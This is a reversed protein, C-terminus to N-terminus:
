SLEQRVKTYKYYQFETITLEITRHEKDLTSPSIHGRCPTPPPAGITQSVQGSEVEGSKSM